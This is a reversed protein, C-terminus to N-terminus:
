CNVLLLSAAFAVACATSLMRTWRRGWALAVQQTTYSPVELAKAGAVHWVFDVAENSWRGGTEIAVVVLRCRGGTLLEPYKMEKDRRTQTM